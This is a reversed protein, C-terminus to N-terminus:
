RAAEEEPVQGSSCAAMKPYFTSRFVQKHIEPLPNAQAWAEMDWLKVIVSPLNGDRIMLKTEDSFIVTEDPNHDHFAFWGANIEQVLRYWGDLDAPNTELMAYATSLDPVPGSSCSALVIYINERFYQLRADELPKKKAQRQAENLAMSIDWNEASVEITQGDSFLFKEIRLKM